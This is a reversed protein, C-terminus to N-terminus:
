MLLVDAHAGALNIANPSAGGLYINPGDGKPRPSCIANYLNVYEGRFNVPGSSTWMKRCAMLFEEARDYRGSHDLSEGFRDVDGQIGGPVLNIDLRSDSINDFAAAMQAFLGTSIYGPRVAILFRIKQTIAMLATATTWTEALPSNEEFMGNSFRTPILMSYFESQEAMRVIESLYGFTPPREPKITGIHEGDGDIPIFWDFKPKPRACGKKLM